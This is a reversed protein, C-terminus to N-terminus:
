ATITGYRCLKQFKPQSKISNLKFGLMTSFVELLHENSKQLKWSLISIVKRKDEKAAMRDEVKVINLATMAANFHFNLAQQCRAQCDTLGTFQKADRFLFEIQFRLKYLRYIDAASMELDTSFLLATRTKKGVKKVLYVLRIDRKFSACNVRATYLKTGDYEGAFEFRELDDFRVKGDYRKKRGLRKQVGHYLWRLSADHRLKGIQQLGLAVVGDIFKKKSYYGDAVLIHVTEPLSPVDEELHYLYQDIRTKGGQNGTLEEFEAAPLTQRTSLQYATNYRVDVIALTSIELGKEAKSHSGNYFYDVGFTGRGSKSIFSCDIAAVLEHDEHLVFKLLIINFSTFDFNKRFWRSFTKEGFGSYRSFNRFNAKGRFYLFLRLLVAMFKSQPRSLAPMQDLVTTVIDM